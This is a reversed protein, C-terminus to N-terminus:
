NKKQLAEFRAALDMGASAKPELVAQAFEYPPPPTDCKEHTAGPVTPSVTLTKDAPDYPYSYEEDSFMQTYSSSRQFIQTTPTINVTPQLDSGGTGEHQVADSPRKLKGSLQRLLGGDSSKPRPLGKSNHQPSEAKPVDMKNKEPPTAHNSGPMVLQIREQPPHSYAQSLNSGPAMPVSFGSPSPVPLACGELGRCYFRTPTLSM